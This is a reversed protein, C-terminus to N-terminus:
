SCGGTLAVVFWIVMAVFVLYWFVVEVCGGVNKM